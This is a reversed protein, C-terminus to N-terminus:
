TPTASKQTEETIRQQSHPLHWKRWRFLLVTVLLIGGAVFYGGLIDSAYHDNLYIRSLGILLTLLSCAVAMIVRGAKSPINGWLLYAATVYFAFSAMAHGSPFSYSLIHDTPRLRHFFHKLWFNSYFSAINVVAIIIFQPALTRFQQRRLCFVMGIGSIALGAALKVGTRPAGASALVAALQNLRDSQVSQVWTAALRDFGDISHDAIFLSLSYFGVICFVLLGWIISYDRRMM